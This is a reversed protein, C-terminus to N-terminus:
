QSKKTTKHAKKIIIVEEGDIIGALIELPTKPEIGFSRCYEKPIVIRSMRDVKRVIGIYKEVKTDHM